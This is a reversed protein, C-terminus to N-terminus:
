PLIMNYANIVCFSGAETEFSFNRGKEGRQKGM